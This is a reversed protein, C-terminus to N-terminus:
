VETDVPLPHAANFAALLAADREHMLRTTLERHTLRERAYTVAGRETFFWAASNSKRRERTERGNSLFFVHQPTYRVVERAEVTCMGDVRWWTQTEQKTDTAM